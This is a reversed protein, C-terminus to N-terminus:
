FSPPGSDNGEPVIYMFFYVIHAISGGFIMIIIWALRNDKNLYPNNAAHVLYYIFGALSLIVALGVFAIFLILGDPIENRIGYREMREIEIIMSFLPIFMIILAVIPAFAMIGALAKNTRKQM